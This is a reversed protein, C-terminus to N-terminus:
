KRGSTEVGGIDYNQDAAFTFTKDEYVPNSATGTNVAGDLTISEREMSRKNMGNITMAYDTGNYIDGGIRYDFVFSLNLNKYQFSNNFGGTLKPERNGIAYTTLNDSVPMGTKADLVVKGDPTRTWKSGSIAMFDGGNFSAAKANGVQVDTVYLVEAGKILNDLTGKNKAMNITAEWTFDSAVVPKGTLALEMGKNYFIPL